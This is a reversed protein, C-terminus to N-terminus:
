KDTIHDTTGILLDNWNPNPLIILSRIIESTLQVYKPFTEILTEIKIKKDFMGNHAVQSRQNYLDKLLNYTLKRSEQNKGILWSGRLRFSLSLQEHNQNDNLLLMELAICLDLIKDTMQIRRKAQSFRSLSLSIRAKDGPDLKQFASYIINMENILTETVKTRHFGYIDHIPSGGSSGSFVGLPMNPLFYSTQFYPICSINEISNLILAIEQLRNSTEWFEKNQDSGLKPELEAKKIYVISTLAALPKPAAHVSFQFDQKQYHESEPSIPMLHIPTITCWDGIQIPNELELGLVWLANIVPIKESDLFLDLNKQAVDQGFENSAWLFWMVLNKIEFRSGSNGKMIMHNELAIVRKDLSLQNLINQGIESNDVIPSYVLSLKTAIDHVFNFREMEPKPIKLHGLEM